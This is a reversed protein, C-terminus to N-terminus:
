DKESAAEGFGHKIEELYKTGCQPCFNHEICKEKNNIFTGNDRFNTAIGIRVYNELIITKGKVEACNCAQIKKIYPM